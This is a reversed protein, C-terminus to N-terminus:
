LVDHFHLEKSCVECSLFCKKSNSYLLNLVEHFHLENSCVECSIDFDVRQVRPHISCRQATLPPQDTHDNIHHMTDTRKEFFFGSINGLICRPRSKTGGEQNKKKVLPCIM